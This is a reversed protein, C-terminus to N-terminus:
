HSGVDAQKGEELIRALMREAPLYPIGGLKTAPSRM